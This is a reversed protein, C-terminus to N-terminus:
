KQRDTKQNNTSIRMYAFIKNEMRLDEVSDMLIKM